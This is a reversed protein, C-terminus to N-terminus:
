LEQMIPAECDSQKTEYGSVEYPPKVGRCLLLRHIRCSWGTLCVHLLPMSFMYTTRFCTGIALLIYSCATHLLPVFHFNTKKYIIEPLISIPITSKVTWYNPPLFLSEQEFVGIILRDCEERAFTDTLVYIRAYAVIIWRRVLGTLQLWLFCRSGRQLSTLGGEQLSHRPYSILLRQTLDQM